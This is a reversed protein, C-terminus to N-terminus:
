RKKYKSKNKLPYRKNIRFNVFDSSINTHEFQIRANFKYAGNPLANKVRYSFNGSKSSTVEDMFSDNIYIQVKHNPITNGKILPRSTRTLVKSKSTLTLHVNELNDPRALRSDVKDGNQVIPIQLSYEKESPRNLDHVCPQVEVSSEPRVMDDVVIDLDSAGRVFITTDLKDSQDIINEASVGFEKDAVVLTEGDFFYAFQNEKIDISESLDWRNELHTYVKIINHNKCLIGLSNGNKSFKAVHLGSGSGAFITDTKSLITDNLEFLIVRDSEYNLVALKSGDTSFTIFNATKGDGLHSDILKFRDKSVDFLLIDNDQNGVAVMQKAGSIGVSTIQFHNFDTTEIEKVIDFNADLKSLKISKDSVLVLYPNDFCCARGNNTALIIKKLQDTANTSDTLSSDSNM